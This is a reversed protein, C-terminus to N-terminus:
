KKKKAASKKRPIQSKPNTNTGDEGGEKVGKKFEKLALGLSRALEPLKAAGFLLLIVVTILIIEGMSLGM